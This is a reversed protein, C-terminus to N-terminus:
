SSTFISSSCTYTEDDSCFGLPISRTKIVIFSHSIFYFLLITNIRIMFVTTTEIINTHIESCPNCCLFLCFNHTHKHTHLFFLFTQKPKCFYSSLSFPRFPPMPKRKVICHLLLLTPLLLPPLLISHLSTPLLFLLLTIRIQFLGGDNVTHKYSIFM